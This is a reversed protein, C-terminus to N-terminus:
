PSLTGARPAARAIFGSRVLATWHMQEIAVSIRRRWICALPRYCGDGDWGRDDICDRDSPPVRDGCWHGLYGGEHGPGGVPFGTLTVEVAAEALEAAKTQQPARLKEIVGIAKERAAVIDESAHIAKLM